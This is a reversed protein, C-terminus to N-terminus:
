YHLQILFVVSHCNYQSSFFLHYVKYVFSNALRINSILVNSDGPLGKFHPGHVKLTPQIATESHLMFCMWLIFSSVLVTRWAKKNNFKAALRWNMRQEKSIDIDSVKSKVTSYASSWTCFTTIIHFLEGLSETRNWQKFQCSEQQMLEDEASWKFHHVEVNARYTVRLDPIFCLSLIFFKGGGATSTASSSDAIVWPRSYWESMKSTYEVGFSLEVM